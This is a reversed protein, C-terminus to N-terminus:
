CCFWNSNVAVKLKYSIGNYEYSFSMCIYPGNVALEASRVHVEPYFVIYLFNNVVGLSGKDRINSIFHISKKKPLELCLSLVM